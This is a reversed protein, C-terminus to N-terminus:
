RERVNFAQVKYGGGDADPFIIAGSFELSGDTCQHQWRKHVKGIKKGSMLTGADLLEPPGFVKEWKDGECVLGGLGLYLGDRDKVYKQIRGRLILFAQLFDKKSGPPTAAVKQSFRWDLAELAKKTYGSAVQRNAEGEPSTDTPSNDPGKEVALTGLEKGTKVDWLKVEGATEMTEKAAKRWRRTWGGASASVILKGDPSFAVSSVANTHGKLSRLEKGEPMSWVKVEGPVDLKFEQGAGSVLMTGDHNYALSSIPFSHGNLVAVEAKTRADFVRIDCGVFSKAKYDWQGWGVAVHKGDPSFAVANPTIGSVSITQEESGTLANWIKVEGLDSLSGRDDLSRPSCSVIYKGDKSYAIECPDHYGAITQGRRIDRLITVMAPVCDAVKEGSRVDRIRILLRREREDYYGTAIRASDPSFVVGNWYPIYGSRTEPVTLHSKGEPLTWILLKEGGNRSPSPLLSSALWKGDPSIRRFIGFTRCGTEPLRSREKGTDADWIRIIEDASLTVIHKGDPSYAARKIAIGKKIETGWRKRADANNATRGPKGRGILVVATVILALLLVGGGAASLMQLGKGSSSTKRKGNADGAEDFQLGGGGNAVPPKAAAPRPPAVPFLGKMSSAAVWKQTGEKLLMDSPLLRKQAALEKLKAATFPGHKKNNRAIFWQDAM